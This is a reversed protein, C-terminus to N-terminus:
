IRHVSYPETKAAPRKVLVNKPISGNKKDLDRAEPEVLRQVREVPVQPFHTKPKRVSM